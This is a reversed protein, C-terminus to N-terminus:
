SIIRNFFENYDKMVEDYPYVFKQDNIIIKNNDFYFWFESSTGCGIFGNEHYFYFRDGDMTPLKLKEFHNGFAICKDGMFLAVDVVKENELRFNEVIQYETSRLDKISSWKQIFIEIPKM